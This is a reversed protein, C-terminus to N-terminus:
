KQRLYDDSGDVWDKRIPCFIDIGHFDEIAIAEHPVNSPIQVLEDAKLILEEDGIRFQLAGSICYSFQESEHHHRPVVCNKKMTIFAFTIKEGTFFRRSFLDTVNDEPIECLKYHKM